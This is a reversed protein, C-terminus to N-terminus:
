NDGGQHPAERRGCASPELVGALDSIVVCSLLFHVKELSLLVGDVAELAENLVHEDGRTWTKLLQAVISPALISSFTKLSSATVHADLM